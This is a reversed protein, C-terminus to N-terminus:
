GFRDFDQRRWEGPVVTAPRHRVAHRRHSRHELRNRLRAQLLDVAERMDHGRIQVHVVDGNIDATVQAIAPQELAPDPAM